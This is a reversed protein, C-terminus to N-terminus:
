LVLKNRREYTKIRHCNSCRCECKRIEKKIKKISFGNIMTGVYMLKDNNVHDFDLARWDDFGCDICKGYIRKWTNVFKKNRLYDEKNREYYYQKRNKYSARDKKRCCINCVNIRGDKNQKDKYFNILDKERKCKSCIKM